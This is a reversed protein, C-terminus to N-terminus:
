SDQNMPLIIHFTAGTGKGSTAYIDGRHNQMIKKCTALGIGTGEYEKRPHLRQFINFIQEANEESFGIGNDAIQVHHYTKMENLAVNCIERKTLLSYSVDIVPASNPKSFKLANSILNSFLQSMQLPIAEITPLNAYSIQAEKQEILLEYDNEINEFVMQLDVPVFKETERSLQSYALVDSILTLMRSSSNKIKDFYHHSRESINELSRELMETFVSIKRAPEQLDHSAIYAFRELEQNSRQLNINAEALEKTRTTVIEEIKQRALVQQTVDSCLVMVGKVLGDEEKYPQYALDLYGEIRKANDYVFFSHGYLYTSQGSTRVNDIVAKFYPAAEPIVEFLPKGKLQAPECGILKAYADNVIEVIMDEGSLVVIGVTADGILNQFRKESEILKKVALVKQTTETCTVFVGSIKGEDGYAPSYSFTWYVDEIKGNRYIPVLQDEYWVPEGTKMVKEFLPGMFDWIEPWAEKGKRGIIPHKGEVGLSPRYADNYFCLLDEGWFLFMPFASHLLIGLTTRLSQPWESPDGISTETWNFKRILEGTEGGGQIFSYKKSTMLLDSGM